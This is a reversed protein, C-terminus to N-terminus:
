ASTSSSVEHYTPVYGDEDHDVWGRNLIFSRLFHENDDTSAAGGQAGKAKHQETFYADLLQSRL